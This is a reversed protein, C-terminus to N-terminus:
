DCTSYCSCTETPDCQTPCESYRYSQKIGGKIINMADSNLNVITKKNISLKKAIKKTKM